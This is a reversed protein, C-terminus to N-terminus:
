QLLNEFCIQDLSSPAQELFEARQMFEAIELTGHPKMDYSVGEATLFEKMKEATVAEKECLLKAAEDTSNNLFDMAEKTAETLAKYLEPKEDHFKLSTAGVIITADKPFAAAVDKVEHINDQELEKLFYPSTTLQCNVSGSLLAQMGDPHSMTVMNNDLAHADGLEKECAMALMVHQIAGWGIIAIKEDKGIDKISQISQDTTNLGMPQASMASYMKIQKTKMSNILFPGVGSHGIDISGALMGEYIEAPGNCTKWEIELDKGYHKEILKKQKMVELPAYALGWQYAIVLKEKEGTGSTQGKGCACLNITMALILCLCILIKKM